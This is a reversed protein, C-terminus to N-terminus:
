FLLFFSILADPYYLTKVTKATYRVKKGCPTSSVCARQDFSYGVCYLGRFLMCPSVNLLWDDSIKPLYFNVCKNSPIPNSCMRNRIQHGTGQCDKSCSSWQSWESWAGNIASCLKFFVFMKKSLLDNNSFPFATFIFFSTWHYRQLVSGRSWYQDPASDRLLQTWLRVTAVAHRPWLSVLVPRGIRGRQGSQNQLALLHLIRLCFVPFENSVLRSGMLWEWRFNGEETTQQMQCHLAGNPRFGRRLWLQLNCPLTSFTQSHRGSVATM